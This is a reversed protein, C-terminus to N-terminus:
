NLGRCPIADPLREHDPLPATISFRENGDPAVAPFGLNLEIV